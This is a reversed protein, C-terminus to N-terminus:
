AYYMFFVELSCVAKIQNASFNIQKAINEVTETQATLMDATM